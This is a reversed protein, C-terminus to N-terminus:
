ARTGLKPRLFPTSVVSSTRCGSRRVHASCRMRVASGRRAEPLISQNAAEIAEDRLEELRIM